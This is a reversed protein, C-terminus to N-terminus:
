YEGQKIAKKEEPEGRDTSVFIPPRVDMTGAVVMQSLVHRCNGLDPTAELALMPWKQQREGYLRDDRQGQELARREFRNSRRHM